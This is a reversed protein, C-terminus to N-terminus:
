ANNLLISFFTSNSLWRAWKSFIMWNDLWSIDIIKLSHIYIIQIAVFKTRQMLRLSRKTRSILFSKSYIYIGFTTELLLLSSFYQVNWQLICDFFAAFGFCTLSMLAIKAISKVGNWRIVITHVENKKACWLRLQVWIYSCKM